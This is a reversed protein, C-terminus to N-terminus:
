LLNHANILFGNKGKKVQFKGPILKIDKIQIFISIDQCCNIRFVCAHCVNYFARGSWKLLSPLLTSDRAQQWAKRLLRALVKRQYPCFPKVHLLQRSVFENKEKSQTNFQHDRCLFYSSNKNISSLTVAAQKPLLLGLICPQLLAPASRGLCFLTASIIGWQLSVPTIQPIEPKEKGTEQLIIRLHKGSEM